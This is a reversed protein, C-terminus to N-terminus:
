EGKIVMANNLSASKFIALLSIILELCILMGLVKIGSSMDMSKDYLIYIIPLIWSALIMCGYLGYRSSWSHGFLKKIAIDKKKKEVYGFVNQVTILLFIGILVTLTISIIRQWSKRQDLEVSIYDYVNYIYPVYQNMEVKKLENRIEEIPNDSDTEIKFPNGGIALICDYDRSSGNNETVVRLSVDEYTNGIDPNVLNNYTFMKQGNDIWIIKLDQLPVPINGEVTVEDPYGKKMFEYTDRIKKEYELYKVPILVVYDKEIEEIYVSNGDVDNIPHALLYNPNVIGTEHQYKEAYISNNISRKLSDPELGGFNALIGGKENLLRYLQIQSEIFDPDDMFFEPIDRLTPIVYLNEATEWNSFEDVKTEGLVLLDYNTVIITFLLLSLGIKLLFNLVIVKEVPKKNKLMHVISVSRVFLYPVSIAVGALLILKIESFMLTKTFNVYSLDRFPIFIILVGIIFVSMSIVMTMKIYLLLESTYIKWTSYGLLKKLGFTKTKFLVDYFIILALILYAVIIAMDLGSTLEGQKKYTSTEIVSMGSYLEMDKKFQYLDKADIEVSFTNAFSRNDDIMYRLTKISVAYKNAFGTFVGKVEGTNVVDNTAMMVKRKMDSVSLPEGAEIQLRDIYHSSTLYVYKDIVQDKDDIFTYYINAEYTDALVELNEMINEMKEFVTQDIIFRYTRDSQEGKKIYSLFEYDSSLYVFFFSLLSIIFLVAMIWKKM